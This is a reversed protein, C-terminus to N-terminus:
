LAGASSLTPLVPAGTASAAAAVTLRSPTPLSRSEEMVVSVSPAPETRLATFAPPLPASVTAPMVVSCPAAVSLGDVESSVSAPSRASPPPLKATPLFPAPVSTSEPAFVKPPVSVILAPPTCTVFEPESPPVAFPVTTLM